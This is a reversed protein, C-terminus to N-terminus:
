KKIAEAADTNLPEAEIEKYSWTTNQTKPIGRGLEKLKELATLVIASPMPMYGMEIVVEQRIAGTKKNRFTVIYKSM